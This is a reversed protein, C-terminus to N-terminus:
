AKSSIEGLARVLKDLGAIFTSARATVRVRKINEWV